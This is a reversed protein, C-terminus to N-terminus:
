LPFGFTEVKRLVHFRFTGPLFYSISHDIAGWDKGYLFGELKLLLSGRGIELLQALDKTASVATIETKSHALEPEGKELFLDLVSGKFGNSVIDYPVLKKPLNDM